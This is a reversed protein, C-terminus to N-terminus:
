VICESVCYIYVTSEKGDLEVTLSKYYKEIYEKAHYVSTFAYNAQINYLSLIHTYSKM